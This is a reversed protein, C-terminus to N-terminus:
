SVSIRPAVAKTIPVSAVPSVSTHRWAASACIRIGISPASSEKFTDTLAAMSKNSATLCLLLSYPPLLVFAAIRKGRAGRGKGREGEDGVAVHRHHPAYAVLTREIAEAKGIGYDLEGVVVVLLHLQGYQEIGQLALCWGQRPLLLLCEERGDPLVIGFQCVFAVAHLTQALVGVVIGQLDLIGIGDGAMFCLASLPLVDVDVLAVDGLVHKRGVVEAPEVRGDGTGGLLDEEDVPGVAGQAVLLLGCM